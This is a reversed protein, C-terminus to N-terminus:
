STIGLDIGLLGAVVLLLIWWIPFFAVLVLVAVCSLRSARFLSEIDKDGDLEVPSTPPQWTSCRQRPTHREDCGALHEIADM